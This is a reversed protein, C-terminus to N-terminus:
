NARNNTYFGVANRSAAAHADFTRNADAESYGQRIANLYMAYYEYAQACMTNLQVDNGGALGRERYNSMTFGQCAAEGNLANDRTPYAAAAPAPPEQPVPNGATAQDAEMESIAQEAQGAMERLMGIMSADVGAAEADAIQQNLEGLQARLEQVTQAPAPAAAALLAAFAIMWKM